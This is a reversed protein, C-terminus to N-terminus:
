SNSKQKIKINLYPNALFRRHFFISTKLDVETDLVPLMSSLFPYKIDAIYFEIKNRQDEIEPKIAEHKEQLERKDRKLGSIDRFYFDVIEDWTRVKAANLLSSCSFIVQRILDYKEKNKEEEYPDYERDYPYKM